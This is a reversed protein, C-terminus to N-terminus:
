SVYKQDFGQESQANFCADCIPLTNYTWHVKDTPEDFEKACNQCGGEVAANFAAEILKSGEPGEYEAEGTCDEPAIILHKGFLERFLRKAKFLNKDDNPVTLVADAQDPGIVVYAVDKIEAWIVPSNDHSESCAMIMCNYSFVHEHGDLMKHPINILMVKHYPHDAGVGLAYGPCKKTGEIGVEELCVEIEDGVRLDHKNLIENSREIETAIESSSSRKNRKVGGVPGLDTVNNKSGSQNKSEWKPLYSQQGNQYYAPQWEKAPTFNLKTLGETSYVRSGDKDTSYSLKFSNMDFEWLEGVPIEKPVISCRLNATHRTDLSELMWRNSAYVLIDQDFAAWWLPRESNRAIYVSNTRRDFWILAYAGYLKKFIEPTSGSKELEAAIRASDLSNLSGAHALSNDFNKLTGNHTLVINKTTLPHATATSIGGMTAYRNHGLTVRTHEWLKEAAMFTTSRVFTDGPVTNKFVRCERKETEEHPHVLAMGTSHPGRVTDIHLLWSMIKKQKERDTKYGGGAIITGVLGCM